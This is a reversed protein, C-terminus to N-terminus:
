DRKGYALMKITRRNRRRCREALKQVREEFEIDEIRDLLQQFTAEARHEDTSFLTGFLKLEYPTNKLPSTDSM